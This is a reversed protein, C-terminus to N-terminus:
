LYLIWAFLFPRWDNYAVEVEIAKGGTRAWGPALELIAKRASSSAQEFAGEDGGQYARVMKSMEARVPEGAPEQGALSTWDGKASRADPIIMWAGGSVIERFLGLRDLLRRLEQERPGLKMGQPGGTSVQADVGSSLNRAYQALVFNQFLERPSYHRRTE